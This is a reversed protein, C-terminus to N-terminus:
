SQHKASRTEETAIPVPVTREARKALLNTAIGIGLSAVAYILPLSSYSADKPNLMVLLFSGSAMFATLSLGLYLLYKADSMILEKPLPQILFNEASMSRLPFRENVDSWASALLSRAAASAFRATPVITRGHMVRDGNRRIQLGIERYVASAMRIAPRVGRPLYRLGSNGTRYHQDALELIRGVSSRVDADTPMTKGAHEAALWEAPLYCRGRDWDERVDRAINTLQMAMGLSKAHRMARLDTVGFVRCLMLGVVGAAHYCYSLLEEQTGIQELRLDLRMGDLLDLPLRKEIKHSAVVEALWQSAEHLPRQGRYIREVDERLMELRQEAQNINTASDVADDCWRCWAYLKEVDRRYERPLLWSAAAFSRSHKRIVSAGSTPVQDFSDSGALRHDYVSLNM